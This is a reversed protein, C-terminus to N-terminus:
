WAAIKAVLGAPPALTNTGSLTLMGRYYLGAISRHNVALRCTLTVVRAQRSAAHMPTGATACGRISEPAALELVTGTRSVPIPPSVGGFSAPSSASAVSLLYAGFPAVGRGAKHTSSNRPSGM